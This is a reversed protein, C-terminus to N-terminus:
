EDFNLPPKLLLSGQNQQGKSNKCDPHLNLVERAFKNTYTRINDCFRHFLSVRTKCISKKLHLWRIMEDVIRTDVLSEFLVQVFRLFFSFSFALTEFIVTHRRLMSRMLRSNLLPNFTIWFKSCNFLTEKSNYGTWDFNKWNESIIKWNKSDHIWTITKNFNLTAAMKMYWIEIATKCVIAYLFWLKHVLIINSDFFRIKVPMSKVMSM